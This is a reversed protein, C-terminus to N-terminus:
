HIFGVSRWYQLWIRVDQPEIKRSLAQEKFAVSAALAEDVALNPVGMADKSDDEQELSRKYFDITKSAPITDLLQNSTLRSSNPRPRGNIMDELINIWEAFPRIPLSLEDSFVKFVDRCLLPQPHVLHITGATPNSSRFEVLAEAAFDLPIWSCAGKIDPLAKMTLSSKVIAPVWDSTNWSGNLGGSIQGIRVVIPRLPTSKAAEYLIHESIWKSESYGQGLASTPDDLSTEPIPATAVNNRFIGVSSTFLLRPPNERPSSLAFDVLARTGGIATEFSALSLNFDVRWAVFIDTTPSKKNNYCVAEERLHPKVQLGGKTLDGEVLVVKPSKAIEPNYGRAVLAQKQRESIEVKQKSRRNLAYIKRVSESAVLKALAASGLAGTTGTILIVDGLSSLDTLVPPFGKTYSALISSLDPARKAVDQSQSVRAMIYEALSSITPHEYVFNSSVSSIGKPVSSNLAHAINQKIWTAQLSDCGCEFIDEFDKAPHKLITNVVDRAFTLSSEESLNEPPTIQSGNDAENYARDIETSYDELIVKRKPAGKPTYVFPKSPDAVIIMEKFIRSHSPAEANVKEVQPWIDNRFAQLKKTDSPNFSYQKKVDILVGSHFRGQGFMVASSIYPHQCLIEELPGPNIKEGTNLMIQDDMRGLVKWRGPHVPHPILIDSTAYANQGNFVTNIITMETTPRAIVVLEYTGDGLPVFEAACHPNMSIYEWDLGPNEPFLAGYVGAESSGYLTYITIGEGVLYDGIPNQLPAGGYVIGKLQRLFPLKASERSWGEFFVPPGFLYSPSTALSGNWVADPTPTVSPSVPPFTAMVLGTSALWAIFNLGIGHFMALAHCGFTMGCLDHAGFLPVMAVQLYSRDNWTVPKPFSTSGSSHVIIRTSSLDRLRPPLPVFRVGPIFIDEFVPMSLITPTVGDGLSQIAERVLDQIPAEPSVLVHSPCVKSLLHAVALPSNRPSVVFITIEARLMGLVTAFYTITDTAALIAITPRPGGGGLDLKARQAVVRAATHAAPVVDSFTLHSLMGEANKYVFVPHAPNNEYHFDYLEPITLSGDMPPHKFGNHHVAQKTPPDLLFNM